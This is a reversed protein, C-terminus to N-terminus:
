LFKGFRIDIKQDPVLSSLLGPKKNSVTVPCIKYKHSPHINSVSKPIMSQSKPNKFSAKNSLIGTFGNVVGYVTNGCLGKNKKQNGIGINGSLYFHQIIVNPKLPIQSVKMGNEIQNIFLNVGKFLPDLLLEIFVLRKYNLDNFEFKINNEFRYFMLDLLTSFTINELGYYSEYLETTWKDFFILDIYELINEPTCGITYSIKEIAEDRSELLNTVELLECYKSVQDKDDYYVKLFRSFPINHGAFTIRDDKLFMTIPKFLAHFKVSNKKFTIPEDLIYILPIYYVGKLKFFVDDILKPIDLELFNIENEDNIKFRMKNFEYHNKCFYSTDEIFSTKYTEIPYNFRSIYDFCVDILEPILSYQHRRFDILDTSINIPRPILNM